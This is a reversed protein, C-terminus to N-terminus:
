MPPCGHQGPAPFTNGINVPDIADPGIQIPDSKADPCVTSNEVGSDTSADIEVNNVHTPSPALTSNEVVIDDPDATGPVPSVYFQANTASTCGVYIDTFVVSSGSLAQIGDQHANGTTTNCAISSGPGGVVLNTAGDVKVADQSITSVILQGVVGTCDQGFHIADLSHGDLKAVDVNVHLTVLALTENECDFCVFSTDCQGASATLNISGTLVPPPPRFSGPDSPAGRAHTPAATFATSLAATLACVALLCSL